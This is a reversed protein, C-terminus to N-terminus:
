NTTPRIAGRANLARLIRDKTEPSVSGIVEIVVQQFKTVEETNYLAQAIDLLLDLQKRIEGVYKLRQESLEKRREETATEINEELYSLEKNVMANIRWLEDMANM